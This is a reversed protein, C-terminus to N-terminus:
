AFYFRQGSVEPETLPLRTTERQEALYGSLIKAIPIFSFVKLPAAFCFLSISASSCDRGQRWRPLSHSFCDSISTRESSRRIPVIAV